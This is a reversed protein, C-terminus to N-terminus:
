AAKRNKRPIRSMIDLMDLQNEMMKVPIDMCNDRHSLEVQYLPLLPFTRIILEFFDFVHDTILAM